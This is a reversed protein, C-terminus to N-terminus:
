TSPRLKDGSACPIPLRVFGKSQFFRPMGALAPFCDAVEFSLPLLPRNDFGWPYSKGSTQGRMARGPERPAHAAQRTSFRCEGQHRMNVVLWASQSAGLHPRAHRGCIHVVGISWAPRPRM